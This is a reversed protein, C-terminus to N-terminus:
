FIRAGHFIRLDASLLVWANTGETAGRAYDASRQFNCNAGTVLNGASFPDKVTVPLTFFVPAIPNTLLAHAASFTLNNLSSHMISITISGTKDSSVNAVVEGDAGVVLSLSDTTQTAAAFGDAAKGTVLLPFGAGAPLNPIVVQAGGPGTPAGIIIQVLGPYYPGAFRPDPM